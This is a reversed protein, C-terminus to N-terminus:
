DQNALVTSVDFKSRKRAVMTRFKLLNNETYLVDNCFIDYEDMDRVNVILVFDSEGTVRYCQKVVKADNMRQEFRKFLHADDKTMTVDVVIHLCPGLVSSNVLAVIKEIVGSERLRQVRKLCASASLGVKDALTQNTIGADQQLQGLIRHDLKDISVAEQKRALLRYFIRM